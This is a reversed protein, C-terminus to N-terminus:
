PAVVKADNVLLRGMYGPTAGAIRKRIAIVDVPYYIPQWPADEL